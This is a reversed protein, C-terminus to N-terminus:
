KPHILAEWKYTSKRSFAGFAARNTRKFQTVYTRAAQLKRMQEDATLECSEIELDMDLQKKISDLPLREPWRHMHLLPLMYPIDVYFTVDRGRQLLEKGVSRTIVHDDHSRGYRGLGAAAIFLANPQSLKEINDAIEIPTPPNDRYAREIYKLDLSETWGIALAKTNESIREAMITHANDFGTSRDWKSPTPDDPTGAFLTVVRTGLKEIQQWSSFAADDLHPSLIDIKQSPMHM